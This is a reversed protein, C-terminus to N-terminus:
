VRKLFYVGALYNDRVGGGEFSLQGLENPIARGVELDDRVKVLGNSPIKDPPFLDV